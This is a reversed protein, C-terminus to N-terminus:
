EGVELDGSETVRHPISALPGKHPGKRPTGDPGFEAGHCPCHFISDRPKWDVECGQHTCRLDVVRMTGEHRFAIATRTGYRFPTTGAETIGSAKGVIVRKAIRRPPVLYFPVPALLAVGTAAASAFALTGLFSRRTPEAMAVIIAVTGPRGSVM